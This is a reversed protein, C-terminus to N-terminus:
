KVDDKKPHIKGTNTAEAESSGASIRSGIKIYEAVRNRIEKFSPDPLTNIKRLLRKTSVTRIQTLSVWFTGQENEIQFFHPGSKQKSTLPLAWIMDGNFKKLILIPREFHEHKGDAEIGVNLGLSCWWIEREYFFLGRRAPSGDLFKKKGNWQDFDKGMDISSCYGGFYGRDVNSLLGWKEYLKTRSPNEINMRFRSSSIRPGLGSMRSTIGGSTHRCPWARFSSRILGITTRCAMVQPNQM